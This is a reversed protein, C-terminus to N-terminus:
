GGFNSAITQGGFSPGYTFGGSRGVASSLPPMLDGVMALGSFMVGYPLLPSNVVALGNFAVLLPVHPSDVAALGDFTVSETAM